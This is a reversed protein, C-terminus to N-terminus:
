EYMFGRNLYDELTQINETVQFSLDREILGQEVKEALSMDFTRMGMSKYHEMHHGLQSLKDEQIIRKIAQNNLLIEYLLHDKNDVNIKKHSVIGKLNESLQNKYYKREDEDFAYILNELTSSVNSNNMVAVVLKGQSSLKILDQLVHKNNAEDVFLIDVDELLANKIAVSYDNFDLGLEKQKIISQDHNMLYEIHQHLSIVNKSKSTNTKHMIHSMTTTRGSSKKGSIIILGEEFESLLDIVQPYDYILDHQNKNMRVNLYPTGRQFGAVVRVRGLDDLVCSTLISKDKYFTEKQERSFLGDITQRIVKDTIITEDMEYTNNVKYRVPTGVAMFIEKAGLQKGRDFMM